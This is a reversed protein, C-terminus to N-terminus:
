RPWRCNTISTRCRASARSSSVSTTSEASTSSSGRFSAVKVNPIDKTTERLLEVREEVSFVANKSANHFVAVWVEDYLQSTRSIIDIHGYTVPDFSGPCM